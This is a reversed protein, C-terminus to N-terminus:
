SPRGEQMKEMARREKKPINFVWYYLIATPGWTFVFSYMCDSAFHAGASIRSIAFMLGLFISLALGGYKFINFIARKGKTEGGFIEMWIDVNNFIFFLAIFSSGVTVHGSPFSSNTNTLGDLFAPEWIRYFQETGGFEIIERPRPRSWGIYVDGIEMGKFLGNVILISGVLISILVFGAYVLLPRYRKKTLGIIFMLLILGVAIYIFVDDEDNFFEWPMTDGVPFREPGVSDYFYGTIALDLDTFYFVVTMIAVLASLIITVLHISKLKM